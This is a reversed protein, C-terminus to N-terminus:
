FSVAMTDISFPHIWDVVECGTEKLDIKINYKKIIIIMMVIIMM